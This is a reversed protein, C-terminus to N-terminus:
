KISKDLEKAYEIRQRIDIAGGAGGAEVDAKESGAHLEGDGKAEAQLRTLHAKVKGVEKVIVEEDTGAFIKWTHGAMFNKTHFCAQPGKSGSSSGMVVTSCDSIVRAGPKGYRRWFM